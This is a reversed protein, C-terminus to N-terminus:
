STNTKALAVRPARPSVVLMWNPPRHALGLQRTTWGARTFERSLRTDRSNALVVYHINEALARALAGIRPLYVVPRRLQSGFLLYSPDDSGFLVGLHADPPMSANLTQLDFAAARQSSLSVAQVQTLNWPRAQTLSAPGHNVTNWAQILRSSGIPKQTNQWHALALTVVALVSLAFTADRRRFAAGLLPMTLAVPVVLFRAM